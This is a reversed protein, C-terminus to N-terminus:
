LLKIDHYVSSDDIACTTGKVRSVNEKYIRHKRELDLKVAEVHRAREQARGLDYKLRKLNEYRCIIRQDM